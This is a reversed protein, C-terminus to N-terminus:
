GVIHAGFRVARPWWRALRSGRYHAGIQSKGMGTEGALLTLKGRAIRGSWLWDVAKSEINSMREFILAAEGTKGNPGIPKANTEPQYLPTNRCIDLLQDRDGGADLWDVVDGGPPLDPLDVIRVSKAVGYVANAAALAKTDANKDDGGQDDDRLVFVDRERFMSVDVDWGTATCTALLNMGALREAAKEGEPVFVPEGTKMQAFHQLQFLVREDDAIGLVYGKGKPNPSVILFRKEYGNRDIKCPRQYRLKRYLEVGNADTYLYDRVQKWGSRTLWDDNFPKFESM